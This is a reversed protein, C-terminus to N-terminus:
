SSEDKQALCKGKELISRKTWSDTHHVDTLEVGFASIQKLRGLAGAFIEPPIGEVALDISMGQKFEGYTLPGFLYVREVGFEEVLVQALRRAENLANDQLERQKRKQEQHKLLLDKKYIGHTIKTHMYSGTM